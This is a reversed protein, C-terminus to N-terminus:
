DVWEKREYFDVMKQVQDATTEFDIQELARILARGLFALDHELIDIRQHDDNVHTIPITRDMIDTRGDDRKPQPETHEQMTDLIRIGM